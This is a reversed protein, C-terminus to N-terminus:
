VKNVMKFMPWKKVMSMCNKREAPKFDPFVVRMMKFIPMPYSALSRGTHGYVQQTITMENKLHDRRENHWIKSEIPYLDEWVAIIIDMLKQGSQTFPTKPRGLKDWADILWRSALVAEPSIVDYTDKGVKIVNPNKKAKKANEEQIATHKM